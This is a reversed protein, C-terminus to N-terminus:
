PDQIRCCGKGRLETLKAPQIAPSKLDYKAELGYIQSLGVTGM